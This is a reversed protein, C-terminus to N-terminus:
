FHHIQPSDIRVDKSALDFSNLSVRLYGDHYYALFPNTSALLMFIRFDFKNNKDLLLPNDIYKQALLSEKDEGCRAGNQYKANIYDTQNDDLLFVGQSKHAGQGIKVLYEISGTRTLM